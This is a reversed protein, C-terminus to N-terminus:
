FWKVYILMAAVYPDNLRTHVAGRQICAKRPACLDAGLRYGSRKLRNKLAKRHARCVYLYVSWPVHPTPLLLGCTCTRSAAYFVPRSWRSKTAFAFCPQYALRENTRTISNCFQSCLRATHKREDATSVFRRSLANVVARCCAVAVFMGVANLYTYFIEGCMFHVLSSWDQVSANWHSHECHV